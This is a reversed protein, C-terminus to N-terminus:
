NIVNQVAPWNQQFVHIFSNAIRWLSYWFTHKSAHIGSFFVHRSKCRMNNHDIQTRKWPDFILSICATVSYHNVHLKYTVFALNEYVTNNIVFNKYLSFSFEHKCTVTLNLRQYLHQTYNLTKLCIFQFLKVSSRGDLEKRPPRCKVQMLFTCWHWNLAISYYKKRPGWLRQSARMIGLGRGLPYDLNKDM